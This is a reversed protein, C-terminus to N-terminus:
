DGAKLVQLLPPPSSLLRKAESPMLHLRKKQPNQPNEIATKLIAPTWFGDKLLFLQPGRRRGRRLESAASDRQRPNAKKRPLAPPVAWPVWQGVFSMPGGQARLGSHGRWRTGFGRECGLIHKEHAAGIEFPLERATGGKILSPLASVNGLVTSGAVQVRDEM